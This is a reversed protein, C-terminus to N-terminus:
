EPRGPWRTPHEVLVALRLDETAASAREYGDEKLRREFEKRWTAYAPTRRVINEMGQGWREDPTGVFHFHFTEAGEDVDDIVAFDWSLWGPDHPLDIEVPFFAVEDGPKFPEPTSTITADM